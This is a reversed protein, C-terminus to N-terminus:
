RPDFEIHLHFNDGYGHAICDYDPGLIESMREAWKQGILGRNLRQSDESDAGTKVVINKCRFDIAAVLEHFDLSERINRWAQTVWVTGDTMLPATVLAAQFIRTIHPEFHGHKCVVGDKFKLIPLKTKVASVEDRGLVDVGFIWGDIGNCSSRSDKRIENIIRWHNWLWSRM